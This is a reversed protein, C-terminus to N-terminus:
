KRKRLAWLNVIGIVIAVVVAAIIALDIATYAPIEAQVAASIDETCLPTPPAPTVLVNTPGWSSGYSEDGFFTAVISYLGENPPTWECRFGTTDSAITGISIISGDTGYAELLVPVGTVGSPMPQQMHLYAMWGSMSEKSVCPTDPQAPTQDTITGTILLKSGNTIVQQSVSVTTDSKGKGYCYIRNDYHNLTIAYGEAVAPPTGWCSVNWIGKGTTADICHLKYGKYLIDSPSHEGNVAYVKGDAITISDHFTMFPNHGYPTEYGSSGSYYSWLETGNTIDYCHIRGDYGATYLKGYAIASCSLYMGWQDEYPETKWIEKGTTVNFGYWERTEKVFETYVGEGISGVNVFNVRALLGTRNETWLFKGTTDYACHVAVEPEAQLARCYIVGVGKDPDIVDPDVYLIGPDLPVSTVNKTWMIGERGDLTEGQPPRWMWKEYGLFIPPHPVTKTSNWLTLTRFGTTEDTGSLSYVLIEGNPGFVRTGSTVNAIDLIWEGTFADYMKYTSGVVSWLYPIVGHQNPSEYDFLQGFSVTVGSKFWLEEGTRLDVCALGQYSSSGLRQNYYLRGQMIIGYFKREYSLGSYYGRLDEGGVIGGFEIERTWMIHSSEPGSTYLNKWGVGFGAASEGGQPELWNGAIPYWEYNEGYIPREWYDTPPPVSPLYGIKEEQVTLETKPSTSSKYHRENSVFAGLVIDFGTFNLWQAPFFCQFYYTGTTAPIYKTYTSGTSETDFTGLSETTDDPKIVTVEVDKWGLDSSPLPDTIGFILLVEQGVGVPNPSATVYAYSEREPLLVANVAPLCTILTAVITLVLVLAIASAKSKKKAIKM